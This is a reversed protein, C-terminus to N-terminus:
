SQARVPRQCSVESHLILWGDFLGASIHAQETFGGQFAASLEAGTILTNALLRNREKSWRKVADRYETEDAIPDLPKWTTNIETPVLTLHRM